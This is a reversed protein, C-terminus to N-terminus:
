NREDDYLEERDIEIRVVFDFPSDMNMGSNNIIVSYFDGSNIAYLKNEFPERSIDIEVTNEPRKSTFDVDLHYAKSWEKLRRLMVNIAKVHKYRSDHGKKHFYKKRSSLEIYSSGRSHSAISSMYRSYEDADDILKNFAAKIKQNYNKILRNLQSKQVLLVILGFLAVIAVSGLLIGALIFLDVPEKEARQIIGPIACLLLAIGIISISIYVPKRVVRGVLNKKVLDSAQIMDNNDSIKDTPLKSQIDVIQHYLEDTERLMDEVQYKNLQEVEDEEFSCSNRMKDATQDLAREASRVSKVLDDEISQRQNNWVAIDGSAGDSILHFSKNNIERDETAPLNLAVPVDIRYDPLEEESCIQSEINNRIEKELTQRADRLRDAVTQFSESMAKKDVVSRVSYLRYAQVTGPDIDNTSLLMVSLWFNFDDADKQVPGSKEYDYVLFRCISPYQNRKCFESSESEKHSRWVGDINDDNKDNCNRVSVIIISSPTKGDFRYKEALAQYAKEKEEDVIPTYITRPAKHEEKVVNTDFKVELPPIGGLMQTLRVLPVDNERIEDKHEYNVLFDYPNQPLSQCMAMCNDDIFRVIIARWEEKDDTLSSLEPLATEITTGSENWRCVGIRDSNLAEYFLSRYKSFAEITKANQIIVSYTYIVVKM